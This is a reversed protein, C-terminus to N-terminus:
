DVINWQEKWMGWFVLAWLIAERDRKEELHENKLFEVFDPNFLGEKRLVEKDLYRDLLWKLEGRLWKNLPISFGRKPREFLAPPVYRGLLKRMILKKSRYQPGMKLRGPLRMSFDSIRYDLLPIRAELSVAMSARDVKTLNNSALYTKMDTYLAAPIAGRQLAANFSRAFLSDDLSHRDGVVLKNADPVKTIVRENLYLFVQWLESQRLLGAHRRAGGWGLSGFFHALGSRLADPFALLHQAIALNPYTTYGGFLEDGGDGSLVVKVDERAFRSVIYTPIASSDAFPEDFIAPLELLTKLAERPGLYYEHHECGLHRAISRAYPAEDYVEDEMGISYTKLNSNIKAAISVILSSDIGGSLFAGVPVDAMLRLGVSDTLLDDLELIKEELDPATLGDDPAEDLPDWYTECTCDLTELDLLLFSGPSLKHTKAFITREGPVYGFLVYDFVLSRDIDPTFRPSAHLAKLESAFLFTGRDRYYYLPKEGFRDRALLLYREKEDYLAFAFMGNLRAVAEKGWQRYAHIIVETDSRSRFSHGRQELEARLAQYNYIEGNFVLVIDGSTSAMPQKGADTLDIISLRRHGLGLRRLDDIWLGADDPGRHVLADRITLLEGERIEGGALAIGAIGCM